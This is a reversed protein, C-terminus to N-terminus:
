LFYVLYLSKESGVSWRLLYKQINEWYKCKQAHTSIHGQTYISSQTKNKPM